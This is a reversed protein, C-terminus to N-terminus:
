TALFSITIALTVIYYDTNSITTNSHYNGLILAGDTDFHLTVHNSLDFSFLEEKGNPGLYKHLSYQVVMQNLYNLQQKHCFCCM